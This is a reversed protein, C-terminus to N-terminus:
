SREFTVEKPRRAAVKADFQNESSDGTLQSLEGPAIPSNLARAGCRWRWLGSLSDYPRPLAKKDGALDALVPLDHHHCSHLLSIHCHCLHPLHEGQRVRDRM